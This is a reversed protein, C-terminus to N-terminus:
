QGAGRGYIGNGESYADGDSPATLQEWTEWGAYIAVPILVLAAIIALIRKM